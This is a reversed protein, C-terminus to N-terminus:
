NKQSLLTSLHQLLVDIRKDWTNNDAFLTRVAAEKPDHNKIQQDILALFEEHLDALHIIESYYELEKTRTAVITVGAACYEYLKLPNVVETILNNIFPIIAITFQSLIHPAEVHSQMGPLQVNPYKSLAAFLKKSVPSVITVTCDSFRKIIKEILELDIWRSDLTGIYGIVVTNKKEAISSPVSQIFEKTVANPLFLKQVAPYDKDLLNNMTQASYTILDAEAALRSEGTQVRRFASANRSTVQLADCCDYVLLKAPVDKRSVFGYWWYPFMTMVITKDWDNGHFQKKFWRRFLQIDIWPTLSSRFFTPVTPPTLIKLNNIKEREEQEDISYRNFYKRLFARTKFAVSPMDEVYTVQFGRRALEKALAHERMPLFKFSTNGFFIFKM